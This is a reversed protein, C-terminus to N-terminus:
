DFNLKKRLNELNQRVKEENVVDREEERGVRQLYEHMRQNAEAVDNKLDSLHDTELEEPVCDIAIHKGEIWARRWLTHRPFKRIEDFFESWKPPPTASLKLSLIKMAAGKDSARTRSTDLDVITIDIFDGM